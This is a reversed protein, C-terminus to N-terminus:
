RRFLGFIRGSGGNNHQNTPSILGLKVLFDNVIANRKREDLPSMNYFVKLGAESEFDFVDNNLLLSKNLVVKCSMLKQFIQPNKRVLKNLKITSPELLYVVDGCFSDNACNNLDVLIIKANPFKAITNQIEPERVSIMNKENFLQFDNREIEMALVNEQGYVLALEKKLIYIFTTAGAHSTVNKFGVITVGNQVKASVSAVSAGTETSSTSNAM